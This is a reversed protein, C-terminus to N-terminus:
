RRRDSPPSRISRTWAAVRNAAVALAAAFLIAELPRYATAYRPEAQFLVHVLTLTVFALAVAQAGFVERRRAMAVAGLCALLLIASNAAKFGQKVVQLVPSSELPSQRVELFYVDGAGVRIDWAWLLRPKDWAYWRAYAAPAETMRAAIAALGRGPKASVLREEAAIREMIEAARPDRFRFAWAAHMEPWSGQVLNVAARGPQDTPPLSHSRVAWASAALVTPLLLAVGFPLGQRRLGLLALATPLVAAVPNVLYAFAWTLGGGLVVRLDRREAGFACLWLALLLVFGFAVESLLAGTAAIHHPWLAVLLGALLSAPRPLFRLALLVTLVASAAGLLVQVQLALAYWAYPGPALQMCAALLWPYGPSRFDDPQLAGDQASGLSFVGHHVLNYAYSFYQGIDGRFPMDVQATLVFQERLALALLAIGLLLLRFVREPETGSPDLPPRAM